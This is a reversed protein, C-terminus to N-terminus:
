HEGPTHPSGVPDVERVVPPTKVERYLLNRIERAWQAADPDKRATADVIGDLNSLIETWQDYTLALRYLLRPSPMQYNMM